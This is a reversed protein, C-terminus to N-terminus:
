GGTPATTGEGELRLVLWNVHGRAAVREVVEQGLYCGKRYSIARALSPVEPALTKEDFDVGERAWGGAVRLVDVAEVPAAESGAAVLADAVAGAAGRSEAWVVFGDVGADRVRAVRVTHGAVVAGTHACEPLEAVDRGFATQAVESARPGRLAIAVDSRE